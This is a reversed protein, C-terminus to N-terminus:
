DMAVVRTVVTLAVVISIYFLKLVVASTVRVEFMYFGAQSHSIYDVVYLRDRDLITGVDLSNVLAPVRTCKDTVAGVCFIVRIVIMVILAGPLFMLFEGEKFSTTDIISLLAGVATATQLVFLCSQVCRCTKRIVAQLVNWQAIAEEFNPSDVFHRVFTDVMCGLGRAVHQIYHAWIVIVGTSFAFSFIQSGPWLVVDDDQHMIIYRCREIIAVFWVAITGFADWASWDGWNHLFGKKSGYSNLLINCEYIESRFIRSCLLVGWAGLAFAMNCLYHGANSAPSPGENWRKEMIDWGCSVASLSAVLIVLWPYFLCLRRNGHTYVGCIRLMSEVIVM